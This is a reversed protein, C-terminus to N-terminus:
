KMSLTDIQYECDATSRVLWANIEMTGIYLLVTGDQSENVVHDRFVKDYLTRPKKDASPM